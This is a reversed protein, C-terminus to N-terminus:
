PGMYRYELSPAAMERLLDLSWALSQQSQFGYLTDWFSLEPTFEVVRPDGSIGGMRAAKLVADEFYGIDDVLGIEIGQLGTCVRGDAFARVDAESMGRGEAVIRIFGDHVEDLIGKWYAQEEETMDRAFSGFDKSEGATIVVVDIGVDDLLEEATVFESIVGISGLLTHPTAYIYDAPAAIYYGGSAAMSGMSVVVPKDVQTFAHHIEDSAVADGGPSDIRLVIAKVSDDANARKILDVTTASGVYGRFADSEGSLIVGEVRIVGVAPGVGTTVETSQMGAAFVVALGFAGCGVVPAVFVLLFVLIIWLLARGSKKPQQRPPQPVGQVGVPVNDSM